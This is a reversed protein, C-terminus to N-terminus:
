YFIKNNRLLCELSTLLTIMIPVHTQLAPSIEKIKLEQLTRQLHKIKM